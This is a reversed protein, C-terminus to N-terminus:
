ENKVKILVSAKVETEKQYKKYIDPQEKQLLKTDLGKKIYPAKYTITLNENEFKKVQQEGMVEILKESLQQKAEELKKLQLQLNIIAHEVQVIEALENSSIILEQKYIEGQRECEFLKEVEAQPKEAIQQVELGLKGFHFLILGAISFQQQLAKYISLQWSVSEINKGSTTKYDCLYFKGNRLLVADITGAVIDNNVQWESKVIRIDHEKIYDYFEYFEDTLGLYNLKAYEELEKHVLTGHEAAKKLTEEDVSDYNPSLHHKKLLQTTSILVKNTETNTYTHNESNFIVAM